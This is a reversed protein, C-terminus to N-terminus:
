SGDAPAIGLSQRALSDAEAAFTELDAWSETTGLNQRGEPTFIGRHTQDPAFASTEAAVIYIPDDVARYIYLLHTYRIGLGPLLPELETMLKAQYDGMQYERVTRGGAVLPAYAMNPCMWPEVVFANKCGKCEVNKGAM